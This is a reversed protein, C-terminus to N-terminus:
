QRCSRVAWTSMLVLVINATGGILMVCLINITAGYHPMRQIIWPTMGVTVLITMILAVLLMKIYIHLGMNYVHYCSVAFPENERDRALVEGDTVRRAVYVQSCKIISAYTLIWLLTTVAAYTTSILLLLGYNMTDFVLCIPVITVLWAVPLAVLSLVCATIFSTVYWM